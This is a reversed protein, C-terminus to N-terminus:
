WLYFLVQYKTFFSQMCTAKCTASLVQSRLFNPCKLLIEFIPPSNPVWDGKGIYADITISGFIKCFHSILTKQDQGLQMIEKSQKLCKTSSQQLDM